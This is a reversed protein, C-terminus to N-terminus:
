PDDVPDRATPAGRHLVEDRVKRRESTREEPHSYSVARRQHAPRSRLRALAIDDESAGDQRLEDEYRKRYFRPVPKRAGDIIIFESPFVDSKYRDWWGSGIGPRRSMLLFEPEVDWTRGTEVEIRRYREGSTWSAAKKLNYRAVYAASGMTVDGILAFGFGWIRELTESKYLPEGKPTTKLLTRDSSFDEGFIIVHYHPRANKEGYEGCGFFRIQQPELHRRLRKLFLQFERKSLGLDLPIAEPSYTLTLFSNRDHLRTEHRIRVAWDGAHNIRCALCKGCPVTRGTGSLREGDVVHSLRVPSTCAPM